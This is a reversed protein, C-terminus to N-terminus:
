WQILHYYKHLKGITDITHQQNKSEIIKSKRANTNLLSFIVDPYHSAVIHSLIECLSRSFNHKKTKYMGPKTNAGKLSVNDKPAMPLVLKFERHTLRNQNIELPNRVSKNNPYITKLKKLYRSYSSKAHSM